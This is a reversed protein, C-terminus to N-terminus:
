PQREKPAERLLDRVNAALVDDNIVGLHDWAVRGCKDLLLTRPVSDVDIPFKSLADSSGIQKRTYTLTPYPIEYRKIVPPLVDQPNEDTAVGVIRVDEGKFRRALEAL